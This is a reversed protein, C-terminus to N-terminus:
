IGAGNQTWTNGAVNGTGNFTWPLYAEPVYVAPAEDTTVVVYMSLKWVIKTADM